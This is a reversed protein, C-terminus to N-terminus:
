KSGGKCAACYNHKMDGYTKKSFDLDKGCKACKKYAEQETEDVTKYYAVNGVPSVAPPVEGVGSGEKLSLGVKDKFSRKKRVPFITTNMDTLRQYSTKPLMSSTPEETTGKKIEDVPTREERKKLINGFLDKHQGHKAPRITIEYANGDKYNYLATMGDGLAWSDLRKFGPVKSIDSIIQDVYTTTHAGEAKHGEFIKIAEDKFNMEKGAM